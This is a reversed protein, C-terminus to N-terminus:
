WMLLIWKLSLTCLNIVSSNWKPGLTKSFAAHHTNFTKIIYATTCYYIIFLFQKEQQFLLCWRFCLYKACNGNWDHQYGDLTYPSGKKPHCSLSLCSPREELGKSQPDGLCTPLIASFRSSSKRLGTSDHYISGCNGNNSQSNPFSQSEPHQLVIDTSWNNRCGDTRCESTLAPIYTQQARLSFTPGNTPALGTIQKLICDSALSCIGNRFLRTNAQVKMMEQKHQDLLKFLWPQERM